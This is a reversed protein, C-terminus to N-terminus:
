MRSVVKWLDLDINYRLRWVKKGIHTGHGTTYADVRILIEDQKVQEIAATTISGDSFEAFVPIASGDPVIKFFIIATCGPYIHTDHFSIRHM